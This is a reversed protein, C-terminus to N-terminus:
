PRRAESATRVVAFVAPKPRGSAAIALAALAATWRM